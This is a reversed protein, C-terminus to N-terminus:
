AASIRGATEATNTLRDAEMHEACEALMTGVDVGGIVSVLEVPVDVTASPLHFGEGLLRWRGHLVMMRDEDESGGPEVPTVDHALLRAQFQRSVFESLPLRRKSVEDFFYRPGVIVRGGRLGGRLVLAETFAAVATELDAHTTQAVLPVLSHLGAGCRRWYGHPSVPGADPRSNSSDVVM